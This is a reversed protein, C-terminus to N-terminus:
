QVIEFPAALEVIKRLAEEVEDPNSSKPIYEEAGWKRSTASLEPVSFDSTVVVTAGNQCREILGLNDFEPIYADLVVIAPHENEIIDLAEKEDSTYLCEVKFEHSCMEACDQLQEFYERNEDVVLLKIQRSNM